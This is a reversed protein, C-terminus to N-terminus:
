QRCPFISDRAGVDGFEIGMNQMAVREAMTATTPAKFQVADFLTENDHASVYNIVEQPPQTYGTPSAM